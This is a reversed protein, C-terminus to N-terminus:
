ESSTHSDFEVPEYQHFVLAASLVGDLLSIETLRRVIEHETDTELTVVLKSEAEAHVEAGPMAAISHFLCFFSIVASCLPVVWFRSLVQNTPEGILM